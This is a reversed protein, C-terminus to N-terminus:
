ISNGDMSLPPTQKPYFISLFHNESHALKFIYGWRRIKGGFLPVNKSVWSGSSHSYFSMQLCSSESATNCVFLTCTCCKPNNEFVLSGNTFASPHSLLMSLNSLAHSLFLCLTLSSSHCLFLFTVVIATNPPGKCSHKEKINTFLPVWWDPWVGTLVHYAGTQLVCPVGRDTFCMTRGRRYFMHYAGARLVCPVGRDKFCKTCGGTKLVWPLGGDKLCMPHGKMTWMWCPELALHQKCWVAELASTPVRAVTLSPSPPHPPLTSLLTHPLHSPTPPTLPHPPPFALPPSM